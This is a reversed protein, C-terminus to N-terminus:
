AIEAGLGASTITQECACGFLCPPLVDTKPKKRLALSTPLSGAFALECPTRVGAGMTSSCCAADVDPM